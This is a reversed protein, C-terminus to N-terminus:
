FVPIIQFSIVVVAKIKFYSGFSSNFLDLCNQLYLIRARSDLKQITVIFKSWNILNLPAFFIKQFHLEIIFTKM